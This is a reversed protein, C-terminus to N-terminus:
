QLYKAGFLTELTVVFGPEDKWGTERRYIIQPKLELFLWGQHIDKRYRLSSFYYLDNLKPRTEATTGIEFSLSQRRNFLHNVQFVQTLLQNGPVQQQWLLSTASRFLTSAGIKRELDFEWGNEWDDETNYEAKITGRFMWKEGLPQYNRYRFKVFAELPSTLKIGPRISLNWKEKQRLMFQLAASLDNDDIEENLETGSTIRDSDEEEDREDRSEIVFNVKEEIQPLDVKIRFKGDYDRHGGESFIASGRIQIYTGTAEEYIREEGFFSDIRQSLREVTNSIYSHTANAGRVGPLNLQPESIEALPAPEEEAKVAAPCYLFAFVLISALLLLPFM